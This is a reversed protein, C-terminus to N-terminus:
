EIYYRGTEKTFYLTSSKGGYEFRISDYDSVFAGSSRVFEILISEGSGLVEEVGGNESYFVSIKGGIKEASDSDLGVLSPTPEKSIKMYLSDNYTYLYLYRKEAKTMTELRLKDMTSAVSKTAKITDAFSIRSIIIGASTAIIMLIGLTIILEILTFGKNNHLINRDRKSKM